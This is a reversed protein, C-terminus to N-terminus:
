STVEAVLTFRIEGDEMFLGEDFTMDMKAVAKEVAEDRSTAEVELHGYSTREYMVTYRPMLGERRQTTGKESM